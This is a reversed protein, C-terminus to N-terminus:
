RFVHGISPQNSKLSRIENKIEVGFRHQIHTGSEIGVLRRIPYAIKGSQQPSRESRPYAVVNNKLKAPNNSLM